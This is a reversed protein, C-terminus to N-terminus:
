DAKIENLAEQWVTLQSRREELLKVQRQISMEGAQIEAALGEIREQYKEALKGVTMRQRKPEPEAPPAPAVAPPPNPNHTAPHAASPNGTIRSVRENAAALTEGDLQETDFSTQSM